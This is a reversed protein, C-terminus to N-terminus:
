LQSMKSQRKASGVGLCSLLGKGYDYTTKVCLLVSLGVIIAGLALFVELSCKDHGKM